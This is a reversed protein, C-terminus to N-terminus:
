LDDGRPIKWLRTGDRLRLCHISSADPATFLVRGDQVIPASAKWEPAKVPMAMRVTGGFNRHGRMETVQEGERYPYAWVLPHALLDVGLVAGANTPCVLIGDGYSLNAAQIRRGPDQALKVQVTALTQMWMLGPSPNKEDRPPDLCALRLEGNHELLVYLKGGLPLPAGLFHCNLLEKPGKDGGVEWMLKGNDLDYARLLSREVLENLAPYQSVMGGAGINGQQTYQPHPPVALDDVAYVRSLDTSLTGLTSNELLVHHLHNGQAYARLWHDIG